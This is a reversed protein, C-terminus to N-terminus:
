KPREVMLGTEGNALDVQTPDFVYRHGAPLEPLERIGAPDLIAKKFEAMDKPYRNHLAHFMKMGHPIQVGFAMRDRTKFYASIPETIIGGGYGSGKKGVGAKAAVRETGPAAETTGSPPTATVPPAAGGAGAQPATVAPPGPAATPTAGPLPAEAPPSPTGPQPTQATADVTSSIPSDTQTEAPSMPEPEGGVCGALLLTVLPLLYKARV